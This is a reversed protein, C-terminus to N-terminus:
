KASQDVEAALEKLCLHLQTVGNSMDDFDFTSKTVTPTTISASSARSMFELESSRRSLRDEPLSLCANQFNHLLLRRSLSFNIIQLFLSPSLFPSLIMSM